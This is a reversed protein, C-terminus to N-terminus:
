GGGKGLVGASGWDVALDARRAVREVADCPAVQDAHAV